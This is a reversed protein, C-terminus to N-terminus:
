DDVHPGVSAFFRVDAFVTTFSEGTGFLEFDVVASVRALFGIRAVNTTFGEAVVM